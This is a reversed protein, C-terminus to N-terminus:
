DEEVDPYFPLPDAASWERDPADRFHVKKSGQTAIVKAGRRRYANTVKKSPHKPAGKKSAAVFATKFPSDSTLKPGIIRDLLTPGVNRKSGHHPIQSFQCGPIEIGLVDAIDAARDLAPVGADGSFLFKEEDVQVLVIASSNNEASTADEAPDKLTEIGFTEKVLTALAAAGERLWTGFGVGAAAAQKKAPADRFDGLLEEYYEETPGLVMVNGHNSRESTGVFPEVIPIGKGKAIRELDAADELSAQLRKMLSGGTIRGDRLAACVQESHAWPQHMWLKGVQLNELVVSLGSSHDADPHTSIVLNVYETHYYREIHKVLEEGSELTGGDIVLVFQKAPDGSMLDGFRMAIADGSKEGNGVPLFDVEFGM